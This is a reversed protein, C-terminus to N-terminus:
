YRSIIASITRRHGFLVNRECVVIEYSLPLALGHRSGLPPWPLRKSPGCAYEFHRKKFHQQATATQLTAENSVVCQKIDKFEELMELCKESKESDLLIRFVFFGDFDDLFNRNDRFFICPSQERLSTNFSNQARGM